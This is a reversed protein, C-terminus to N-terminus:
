TTRAMPVARHASASWPWTAPPSCDTRSCPPTREEAVGTAILEALGPEQIPCRGALLEDVKHPNTDIGIVKHGDRALCGVATLGVYGLGFVAVNM